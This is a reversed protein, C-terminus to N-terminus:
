PEPALDLRALVAAVIRDCRGAAFPFAAPAAAEVREALAQRLTARARHFRTKVTEPRLGLCAATEAVSMGEVARLMFVSRFGDPLADIAAELLRRVESSAALREPDPLMSGIKEMIEEDSTERPSGDPGRRRRLRGLAENAAIRGLWSALGDPGAFRHLAAFARVYTEQLVDEAEADDRVIGRAIRYLRRNYRRMLLAFAADDGARIRAVIEIDTPPAPVAIQPALQLM